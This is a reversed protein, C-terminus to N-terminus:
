QAAELDAAGPGGPPEDPNDDLNAEMSTLLHLSPVRIKRAMAVVKNPNRTPPEAAKDRGIILNLTGMVPGFEADQAPVPLRPRPDRREAIRRQREKRQRLDEQEQRRRKLSAALARVGVGSRDAAIQKLQEVEAESLDAVLVLQVFTEPVDDKATKELAAKVAAFDQRLEYSSGGHAFSKIWVTGDARRMIMACSGYEPGEIPDALTEGVFQAPDALVDAVTKGELEPDDFPLTIDPLLVGDCQREITRRARRLDMGTREVLRRSQRDIFIERARACDGALRYAEKARLEQLTTLEVVTLPPCAKGTDLAQGEVVIPQRAALDQAVPDVLLPPGEFMFREPTGCVRDVLSRELLQGAAGVIMWGLGKLWCRQHLTKLFREIDAGDIVSVYVHRGGSGNFPEGTAAHFLGASTSAREVRAVSALSPCVSALAPWLGGLADMAAVVAASMGKLDFDIPALAPQGPRYTIYDQSRSIVGPYTAGNLRRKTVVQVTDPLDPRMAGVVVAENPKLAILLDAYQSIAAFPFRRATGNAMRCASGDSKVSGGPGLSIRKTLPGNSKTFIVIEFPASM